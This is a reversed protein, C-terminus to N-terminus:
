LEHVELYQKPFWLRNPLGTKLYSVYAGPHSTSKAVDHWKGAKDQLRHTTSM